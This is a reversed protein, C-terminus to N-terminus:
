RFSKLKNFYERKSNDYPSYNYQIMVHRWITTWVMKILTNGERPGTLIWNGLHKGDNYYPFYKEKIWHMPKNPHLRKVFKIIKNWIYNDMNSFTKKASTPKWYNATGRILPNLRKILEDVNHGHHGRFIESVKSKFQKTSEKSPKCIHKIGNSTKYRRFNFRLFDFGYLTHTIRTKDNALKLGRKKLYPNLIDYIAEIDEKTNAFIVFDDAYRVMRYNGETAYFVNGNKTRKRYSIKLTKEMGDLAINALLPSLVGGQPTGKDSNHFM